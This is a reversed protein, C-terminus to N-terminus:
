EGGELKVVRGPMWLTGTTPLTKLPGRGGGLEVRFGSLHLLRVAGRITLGSVDPVPRVTAGVPAYRPVAPLKVVYSSSKRPNPAHKLAVNEPPASARRISDARASAKTARLGAPSTDPRPDHMSSALRNLDLSADRSSLAARLVVNLVSGAVAGGYYGNKPNDIKAVVVYQPNDSPFLGVFSATYAGAQYKGDVVRRATGSKGAIDITSLSARRGTGGEVVERLMLQVEHAVEPTMVRRLPKRRSSYLIKGSPDRIEKILNPQLLEGGNALSGYATALQLPTVAIEYGMVLSAESRKSWRVPERLTGSAEAPLPVGTPTGFGLDRLTVYMDKQSMRQVFRVLGINSSYKIIDFLSMEAAKHVDTIIRGELNWRGNYTEIIEDTRALKKSLLAAAFFPKLTSGPEYPETIATNATARPDVRSSAMALIDGTHPDLVVIDGGSAGLSDVADRIARETIDQLNRNITLTVTKGPQPLDVESTADISRGRHDRAVRASGTDGKLLGNLMLEVGDLPEGTRPDLRGVIRRIGASNAYVREMANKVYVGRYNAYPAVIEVPYRGPLEVWKRNTDGASRIFRGEVGLKELLEAVEAPSRVERPAISLQALSRSEVLTDGREDLIEGRPAPLNRTAYHQRKGQERWYSGRYLQEYGAKILIAFVFVVLVGHIISQRDPTKM